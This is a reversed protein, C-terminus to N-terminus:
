CAEFSIIDGCVNGAIKRVTEIDEPYDSEFRVYENEAGKVYAFHRFTPEDAEFWTCLVKCKFINYFAKPIIFMRKYM